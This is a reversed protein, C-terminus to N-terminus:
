IGFTKNAKNHMIKTKNKVLIEAIKKDISDPITKPLNKVSYQPEANIMDMMAQEALADLEKYTYDRDKVIEATIEVYDDVETNYCISEVTVETLEPDGGEPPDNYTGPYFKSFGGSYSGALDVTMIDDYGIIFSGGEIYQNSGDRDDDLDFLNLQGKSDRRPWIVDSDITGGKYKNNYCFSFLILYAADVPDLYHIWYEADIYKYTM